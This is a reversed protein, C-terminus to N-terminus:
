EIYNNYDSISLDFKNMATESKLLDEKSFTYKKNENLKTPVPGLFAMWFNFGIWVFAILLDLLSFAATIDISSFYWTSVIAMFIATLLGPNYWSKLGINFGLLHMFFEIYSFILVALVLWSVNNLFLTPIYVVVVFWNNGWMCNLQNIPWKSVNSNVFRKEVKLGGWPFGGPFGFEEFFHFNLLIILILITTNLQSWDGLGLILVFVLGIYVSINYWNRIIKEM